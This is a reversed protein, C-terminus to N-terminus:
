NDEYFSMIGIQCFTSFTVEYTEKEELPLNSKGERKVSHCPGGPSGLVCKHIKFSPVSGLFGPQVLVNPRMLM